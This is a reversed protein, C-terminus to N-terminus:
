KINVSETMQEAARPARDPKLIHVNQRAALLLVLLYIVFLAHLEIREMKKHFPFFLTFVSGVNSVWLSSHKNDLFVLVPIAASFCPSPPVGTGRYLIVTLGDVLYHLVPDM